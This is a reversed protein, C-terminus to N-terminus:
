LYILIKLWRTVLKFASQFVYEIIRKESSKAAIIICWYKIVNFQIIYNESLNIFISYSCILFFFTRIVELFNYYTSTIDRCLLGVTNWICCFHILGYIKSIALFTKLTKQFVTSMKCVIHIGVLSIHYIFLVTTNRNFVFFIIPLPSRFVKNFCIVPVSM